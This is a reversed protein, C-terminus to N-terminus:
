SHFRCAKLHIHHKRYMYYYDSEDFYLSSPESDSPDGNGHYNTPVAPLDYEHVWADIYNGYNAPDPDEINEYVYVQNLHESDTCVYIYDSYTHYTQDLYGDMDNYSGFLTGSIYYGGMENSVVDELYGWDSWRSSNSSFAGLGIHQVSNPVVVARLACDKFAYDGISELGGNASRSTNTEMYAYALSTCGSFAENGITKVSSPIIISALHTCGKFAANGISTVSDPITVTTLADNDKFANDGIATILQNDFFMPIVVDGTMSCEELVGNVVKFKAWHAVLTIDQSIVDKEFNWKNGEQTYWGQFIFGDLEPDYGPYAITQGQPANIIDIPQSITASPNGLDFTVAHTAGNAQLNGVPSAGWTVGGMGDDSLVWLNWSSTDLFSDGVQYGDTSAPAAGSSNGVTLSTGNTGNTGNQGDQGVLSLLWEPETLTTGPNNDCYIEYASKGNTGNTGDTGNTGQLSALWDAESLDPDAHNDCYIQYASKGNAGVLSDLWESLSGGFGNAQALEYASLGDNGVLSLLWESISGTYGNDQALEYASKGNNGAPGQPGQSGQPGMISGKDSWAAPNEGVQELVYIQGTANNIYLDGVQYGDTSSPNSSNVYIQSGNNGAPGQPGVPGQAGTAGQISGKSVWSGNEKVFYEWSVTNLYSDGNFGETTPNITGTLLSHGNTGDQGDAGNYVTITLNNGDSFTITYTDSTGPAGTGSTSINSITLDAGNTGNTGNAGDSGKFSGKSTWTDEATKVYLTWTSLDIYSDGVTGINSAPVSSGTLLTKGDAGNQGNQGDQGNAGNAGNTVTFQSTTSDSYTITYTDTTGASGDGSTREISIISRGKISGKIVWNGNEKVYYDWTTLNIYSDGDFGESTPAVPGTLVSAGNRGNTVTFTSSTGNSYSVTYTDVLGSSSTYSIGTISVGDQGNTGNTGDQGDNGKISGQLAWNGSVKLYYNWSDTDIYSDGDVGLTANSPAGIGVLITNGNTGDAGNAGNSGNQGNQGNAGNTVTFTSTNGDSYTITYTDVTGASGDGSTRAISTVSVGDAGNTGNTGNQGNQGNVGDNGKINGKLVWANNERVYYDWTLTNVYSDGENGLDVAPVGTGTRMSTGDAGNQGNAGNAGNSGNAGNVIQYDFHTGNTFNIRYTTQTANSDLVVIESIGNGDLGNQGNQGNMGNAGAQGQPGQAKVGSDVGDIMWNGTIADITIVPTHGDQGNQGNQGNSGPAGNVVDFTATDGNSFTITYTDVLGNEGTKVVSTVSISAGTQGRACIGTDVNDIIWNGTSPDISITPTHGDAGPLGQIGEPGQDGREGNVVIFESTTHDSYTITYTDILGNQATKEISVISRGAEGQPGRASIGTDVNDIIWTGNNGIEITPTHGDAGPYGQIDKSVMGVM